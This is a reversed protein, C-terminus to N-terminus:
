YLSCTKTLYPIVLITQPTNISCQVLFTLSSEFESVTPVSLTISDLELWSNGITCEWVNRWISVTMVNSNIGKRTVKYIMLWDEDKSSLLLSVMSCGGKPILGHCITTLHDCKWHESPNLAPIFIKLIKTALHQDLLFAKCQFYNM